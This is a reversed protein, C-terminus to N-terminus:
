LCRKQVTPSGLVGQVPVICLAWDEPAPSLVFPDVWRYELGQRGVDVCGCVTTM